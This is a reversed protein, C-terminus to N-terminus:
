QAGCGLEFGPRMLDPEITSNSWPSLNNIKPNPPESRVQLNANRLSGGVTNIGAHWGAKLLNVDKLEGAGSPNQEGWQSNSDKPLLEAPNTILQKECNSPLGSTITSLGQASAPESNLGAPMAPEVGLPANESQESKKNSSNTMGGLAKGLSSSYQKLFLVLVLLGVLILVNRKTLLNSMDKLLTM